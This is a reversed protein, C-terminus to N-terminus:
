VTFKSISNQLHSSLDTLYNMSAAIEQISATHEETSAAIEETSAANKEIISIINQISKEVYIANTNVMATETAVEEIKNTVDFVSKQILILSDTAKNLSSAQENISSNTANVETVAKSIDSQVDIILNSIKQTSEKSLEALNSVESAVVAFGKGAEGARAAEINANLALLNIQDTIGNIFEVVNGIENSKISLDSIVNSVNYSADKTNNMLQVQQNLNNVGETVTEIANNALKNMYVTNETIRKVEQVVDQVSTNSEDALQSERSASEAINSITYAVEEFTKSVDDSTKMINSSSSAVSIAANNAESILSRITSIFKNFCETVEGLEDNKHIKGVITLDGKEAQSMLSKFQEIFITINKYTAIILISFIVILIVGFVAIIALNRNFNSIDIDSDKIMKETENSSIDEISKVLSDMDDTPKRDIGKVLGDVIRYSEPNNSNYSKIATNYKQCLDNHETILSDVSSTDINKSNMKEKLNLLKSQVNDKEKTFQSFYKKFSENDYGRLLTDKWEQVQKKFEVQAQRADDVIVIYDSTNQLRSKNKENYNEITIWSFSTVGLIFIMIFGILLYLRTGIGKSKKM